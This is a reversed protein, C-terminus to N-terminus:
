KQGELCAASPFWFQRTSIKYRPWGANSRPQQSESPSAFGSPTTTMVVVITESIGIAIRSGRWASSVAEFALLRIV